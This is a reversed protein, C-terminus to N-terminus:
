RIGFLLFEINERTIETESWILALVAFGFGPVVLDSYQECAPEVQDLNSDGDDLADLIDACGAGVWGPNVGTFKEVVRAAQQQTLRKTVEIVNAGVSRGSANGDQGEVLKEGNEILERLEGGTILVPLDNAMSRIFDFGDGQWVWLRSDESKDAFDRLKSLEMELHKIREEGAKVAETVHKNVKELYECKRQLSEPYTNGSM